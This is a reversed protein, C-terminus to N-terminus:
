LGISIIGNTYADHFCFCGVLVACGVYGLVCADRYEWFSLAVTACTLSHSTMSIWVCVRSMTCDRAWGAFGGM